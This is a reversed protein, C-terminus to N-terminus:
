NCVTVKRNMGVRAACTFIQALCEIIENLMYNMFNYCCCRNLRVPLLAKFINFEFPSTM